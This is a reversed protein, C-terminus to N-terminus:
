LTKFGKKLANEILQAYFDSPIFEKKGTVFIVGSNKEQMSQLDQIM